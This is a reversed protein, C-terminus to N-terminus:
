QRARVLGRALLIYFAILLGVFIVYTAPYPGVSAFIVNLVTAAVFFTGSLVRFNITTRRLDFGIAIAACGTIGLLVFTGVAVLEKAEPIAWTYMGYALLSSVILALAANTRDWHM